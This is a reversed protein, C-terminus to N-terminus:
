ILEEQLGFILEDIIMDYNANTQIKIIANKVIDIADYIKSDCYNNNNVEQKIKDSLVILMYELIFQIDDKEKYLFEFQKMLDIKSTISGEILGKIIMETQSYTELKEKIKEVKGISGNCLELVSDSPNDLLKNNKIYQKIEENSLNQFSLKMCRSKITNLLNSENSLVLIIVVYEPPEELTKLLSNQAEETMTDADNIIIVKRRSVIPKKYIKEKLERIQSIKIHNGDPDIKEYDPHNQGAFKICSECSEDDLKNDSVCLILRAFEKAILQKGIGDQGVFMYSHLIDQNIAQKKLDNKINDNGIINVFSM